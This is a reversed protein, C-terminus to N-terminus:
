HRQMKGAQASLCSAEEFMTLIVLPTSINIVSLYPQNIAFVQTLSQDPKCVKKKRVFKNGSGFSMYQCQACGKTQQVRKLASKVYSQKKRKKVNGM